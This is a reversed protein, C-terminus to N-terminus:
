TARGSRKAGFLGALLGPVSLDVDLREWHLGIGQGLVEIEALDADSAAKLGVARRATFAFGRGDSLAVHVLGTAPEYRAAAARPEAALVRRGRAEAERIAIDETM